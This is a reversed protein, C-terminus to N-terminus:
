GEKEKLEELEQSRLSGLFRELIGKKGAGQVKDVDDKRM